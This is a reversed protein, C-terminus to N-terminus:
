FDSSFDGNMQAEKKEQIKKLKEETGEKSTFFNPLAIALIISIILVVVIIETLTYRSKM